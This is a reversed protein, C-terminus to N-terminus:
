PKAMGRPGLEVQNPMQLRVLCGTGGLEERRDIGEVGKREGFAEVLSRRPEAAAQRHQDLDLKTGLLRLCPELRIGGFKALQELM